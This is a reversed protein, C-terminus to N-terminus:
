YVYKTSFFAETYTNINQTVSDGGKMMVCLQLLGIVAIESLKLLHFYRMDSRTSSSYYLRVDAGKALLSGPESTIAIVSARCAKARKMADVTSVANGSSSLCIAVDGPSMQAAAVAAVPPNTYAYSSIGIQLFFM